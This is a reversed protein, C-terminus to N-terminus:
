AEPGKLTLFHDLAQPTGPFVCSHDDPVLPGPRHLCALEDARGLHNVHEIRWRHNGCRCATAAEVIDGVKNTM